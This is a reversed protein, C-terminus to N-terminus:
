VKSLAGKLMAAMKDLRYILDDRSRALKFDERRDGTPEAALLAVDPLVFMPRHGLERMYLTKGEMTHMPVKLGSGFLFRFAEGGVLIYFLFLGRRAYEEVLGKIPTTSAKSPKVGWRSCSLVLFDETSLEHANLIQELQRAAPGCFPLRNAYDEGTPPPALWLVRSKINGRM